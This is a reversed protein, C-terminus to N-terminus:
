SFRELLITPQGFFQTRAFEAYGCKAALRLSPANNPDILCVTRPAGVTQQEWHLVAHVAELGFGRGQTQPHIIWGAEPIGDLNINIERHVDLLGVDGVFQGTAKEFVMWYGIGLANWHGVYRILRSWVDERTSPKGTIYRTVEARSWLDYAMEFDELRHQRM